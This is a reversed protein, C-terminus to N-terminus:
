ILGTLDFLTQGNLSIAKRIYIKKRSYDLDAVNLYKKLLEREKNIFVSDHNHGYGVICHCLEHIMYSTIYHEGYKMSWEPVTIRHYKSVRRATGHQAPIIEIQINLKLHEEELIIDIFDELNNKINYNCERTKM